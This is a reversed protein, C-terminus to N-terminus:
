TFTGSAPEARGEPDYAVLAERQGGPERTRLRWQVRALVVLCGVNSLVFFVVVCVYLVAVMGAVDFCVLSAEGLTSNAYYCFRASEEASRKTHNRLLLQMFLLCGYAYAALVLARLAQLQARHWDCASSATGRPHRRLSRRLNRYEGHCVKCRGDTELTELLRQQCQLHLHRDTCACLGSRLGDPDGEACVYCEM